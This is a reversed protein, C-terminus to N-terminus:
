SHLDEPNFAASALKNYLGKMNEFIYTMTGTYESYCHKIKAENISIFGYEDFFFYEALSQPTWKGNAGMASRPRRRKDDNVM